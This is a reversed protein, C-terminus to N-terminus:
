KTRMRWSGLLSVWRHWYIVSTAKKFKQFLRIRIANRIWGHVLSPYGPSLCATKLKLWNSSMVYSNPQPHFQALKRYYCRKKYAVPYLSSFAPNEKAHLMCYKIQKIQITLYDHSPGVRLDCWNRVPIFMSSLIVSDHRHKCNFLTEKVAQM